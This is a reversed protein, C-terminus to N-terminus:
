RPAGGDRRIRVAGGFACPEVIVPIGLSALLKTASEPLPKPTVFEFRVGVDELRALEDPIGDLFARFPSKAPQRM